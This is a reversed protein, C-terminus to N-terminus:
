PARPPCWSRSGRRGSRCPPRRGPPRASPRGPAQFFPAQGGILNATPNGPSCIYALKISPDASLAANVKEPQLHFGNSADLPVKVIELDNVQASVSYMGYTPPCTLIKDKGPVCFCRLLADIAEDSGVGCFM